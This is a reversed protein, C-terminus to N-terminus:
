AKTQIYLVLTLYMAKRFAGKTAERNTRLYQPSRERLLKDLIAKLKEVRQDVTNSRMYVSNCFSLFNRTRIDERTGRTEEFFLEVIIHIAEQVPGPDGQRIENVALVLSQQPTDTMQAAIDVIRPPMPEGFFAENVKNVTAEVRGGDTEREVMEGDDHRDRSQNLYNGALKTNEYQNKLAKVMGNLRGWMSVLYKLLLLDSGNELDPAYKLHARWAITLITKIMTGEQKLTFKDTLTNMAYAMANPQYFRRFYRFQLGAYMATAMFMVAMKTNEEIEAARFGVKMATPATNKQRAHFRIIMMMTWYLPKNAHAWSAQVVGTDKIAKRVELPNLGSIEYVPVQDASGEKDGFYVTEGPHTAELAKMLRDSGIVGQMHAHLRAAAGPRSLAEEVKHYERSLFVKGQTTNSM